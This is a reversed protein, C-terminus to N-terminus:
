PTETRDLPTPSFPPDIPETPLVATVTFGDGPRRLDLTGGAAKVREAMGVLGHGGTPAPSGPRAPPAPNHVRVRVHDADWDLTITIKTGPAHKRANTLAEQVLRYAALEGRPSLATRTGHVRLDVTAGAASVATVLEPLQDLTPLPPASGSETPPAGPGGATGAAAETAEPAQRLLGVTARVEDLAQRTHKALGRLAQAAADPDTRVLYDAVSAQANVLTLHHALVDHLERAIRLREAEVERRTQEVQEAQERVTRERRAAVLVGAVTGDLVLNVMVLHTWLYDEAPHTGLALLPLVAAATAGAVWATRRPARLGVTFAAVMVAVPVPQFVAMGVASEWDEDLQPILVLQAASAATTAGLVPVPWVTRVTLPLWQLATFVLLAPGPSELHGERHWVAVLMVVLTSATLPLHRWGYGHSWRGRLAPRLRPGGGTITDTDM